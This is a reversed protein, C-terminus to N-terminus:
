KLSNVKYKQGAVFFSFSATWPGSTKGKKKWRELFPGLLHGPLASSFCLFLTRWSSFSLFACYCRCVSGSLCNPHSYSSEWNGQGRSFLPSIGLLPAPLGRLPVPSRSKNDGSRSFATGDPCGAGCVVVVTMTAVCSRCLFSVYIGLVRWTCICLLGVRVPICASAATFCAAFM